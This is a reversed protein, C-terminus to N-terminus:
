NKMTKWGSQFVMQYKKRGIQYTQLSMVSIVAPFTQNESNEAHQLVKFIKIYSSWLAWSTLGYMERIRVFGRPVFPDPNVLDSQLHFISTKKKYYILYQKLASPVLYAWKSM